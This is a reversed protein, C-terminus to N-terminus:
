ASDATAGNTQSYRLYKRTSVCPMSFTGAPRTSSTAFWEPWSGNSPAIIPTAISRSCSGGRMTRAITSFHTPWAATRRSAEERAAPLDDARGLVAAAQERVVLRNEDEGLAHAADGLQERLAVLQLLEPEAEHPERELRPRGDHRDADDAGLLLRRRQQVQLREGLQEAQGASGSVSVTGGNGSGVLYRM